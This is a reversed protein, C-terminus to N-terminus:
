KFINKHLKLTRFLEVKSMYAKDDLEYYKFKVLSNVDPEYRNLFRAFLEKKCKLTTTLNTGSNSFRLKVKKERAEVDFLVVENTVNNRAKKLLEKNKYSNILKATSFVVIVLLIGIVAYNLIGFLDLILILPIIILSLLIVVIYGFYRDNDNIIKLEM